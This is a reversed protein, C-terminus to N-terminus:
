QDGIWGKSAGPEAVLKDGAGDGEYVLAEQLTRDQQLPAAGVRGEPAGVDEVAARGFKAAVPPHPPYRAGCPLRAPPKCPEYPQRAARHRWDIGPDSFGFQM